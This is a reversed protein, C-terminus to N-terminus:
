IEAWFFNSISRQTGKGNDFTHSISGYERFNLKFYKMIEAHNTFKEVGYTQQGEPYTELLHILHIKKDQALAYAKFNKLAEDIVDLIYWTIHSLFIIDPNNNHLIQEQNISGQIYTPGPNLSKAKAVATASIEVGTVDFGEDYIKKSIHGLGSGYELVCKVKHEERIKKMWRLAILRDILNDHRNTIHLWPDECAQYMDEFNGIFDGNNFIYDNYNNM